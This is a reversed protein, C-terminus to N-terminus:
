DPETPKRWALRERMGEYSSFFFLKDRDRNFKGPIDVPGGVNYTLTNYRYRGPKLGVRNDFFNGANFQEHRKFYSALGHFERTGSKTVIQLNSGAMRGYEAQYNGQLVRVEAIADLNPPTDLNNYGRTNGIVGDITATVSAPFRSTPCMAFRCAIVLASFM